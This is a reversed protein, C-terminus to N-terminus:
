FAGPPWLPCRRTESAQHTVTSVPSPGHGPRSLICENSAMTLQFGLFESCECYKFSLPFVPIYKLERPGAATRMASPVQPRCILPCNEPDPGTLSAQGSTPSEPGSLVQLSQHVSALALSHGTCEECFAHGAVSLPGWPM